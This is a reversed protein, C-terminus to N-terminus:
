WLRQARNNNWVTSHLIVRVMVILRLPLFLQLIENVHYYISQDGYLTATYIRRGLLM